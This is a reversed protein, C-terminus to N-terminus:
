AGKVELKAAIEGIEAPTKETKISNINIGSANVGEKVELAPSQKKKPKRVRKKVSSKRSKLVEDLNINKGEKKLRKVEKLAEMLVREEDYFEDYIGSEMASTLSQCYNLVLWNLLQFKKIKVGSYKEEMFDIHKQLIDSAEQDILFREPAKKKDTPKKIIKKTMQSEELNLNDM